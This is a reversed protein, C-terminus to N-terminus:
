FDKLDNCPSEYVTGTIDQTFGSIKLVEGFNERNIM